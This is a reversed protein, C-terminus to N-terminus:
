SPSDGGSHPEGSDSCPNVEEETEETQENQLFPFFYKEWEVPLNSGTVSACFVLSLLVSFLKKM